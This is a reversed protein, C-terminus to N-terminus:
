RKIHSNQYTQRTEHSQKCSRSADYSNVFMTTPDIVFVITIIAM